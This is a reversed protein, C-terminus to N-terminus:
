NKCWRVFEESSALVVHTETLQHIHGLTYDVGEAKKDYALSVRDIVYAMAQHINVKTLQKEKKSWRASLLLLM